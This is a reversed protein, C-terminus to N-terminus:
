QQKKEKRLTGLKGILKGIYRKKSKRKIRMSISEFSDNQYKLISNSYDSDLLVPSHYDKPLLLRNILYSLTIGHYKLIMTLVDEYLATCTDGGGINLISKNVKSSKNLCSCIAYAADEASIFEVMEHKPITYIIKSNNLDGIVLSLRLITYNNLKKIILNEAAKKAEIFYHDSSKSISNKISSPKNTNYIDTTSTYILMCNKNYYNIAKILNETGNIETVDTIKKNLNALPPLCTALNIIYDQDKVLEYVINGDLIDGYIVKIRKRYKKLRSQAYKNPLDVATIEYKGESLLYKIVNLGIKGAAGTILVKKM